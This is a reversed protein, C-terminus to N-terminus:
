EFSNLLDSRFMFFKPSLFVFFCLLLCVFFCVFFFLRRFYLNEETLVHKPVQQCLELFPGLNLYLGMGFKLHKLDFYFPVEISDTRSIDFDSILSEFLKVLPNTTYVIRHLSVERNFINSM